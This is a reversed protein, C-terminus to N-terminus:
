NDSLADAQQETQKLGEAPGALCMLHFFLGIMGVWTPTKKTQKKVKLLHLQQAWAELTPLLTQFGELESDASSPKQRYLQFPAKPDSM